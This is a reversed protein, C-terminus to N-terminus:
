RTEEDGQKNRSAEMEKGRRKAGGRMSEEQTYYPHFQIKILTSGRLKGDDERKILISHAPQPVLLSRVGVYSSEMVHVTNLTKLIHFLFM